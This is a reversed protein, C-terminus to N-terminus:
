AAARQNIIAIFAEHEDRVGDAYGNKYAQDYISDLNAIGAETAKKHLDAIERHCRNLKDQTESSFRARLDDLSGNIYQNGFDIAGNLDDAFTSIHMGARCVQSCYGNETRGHHAPYKHIYAYDGNDFKLEISDPSTAKWGEPIFSFVTEM